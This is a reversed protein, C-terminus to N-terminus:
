QPARGPRVVIAQNNAQLTIDLRGEREVWQANHDSGSSVTWDTMGQLSRVQFTTREKRAAANLGQVRLHLQTGDWHAESMAFRPFDVGEVTPESFKELNPTNFISSWDGQNCVWGAMMRANYQGRPHVENLGLGLTFEGNDWTPELHQEAATWIRSKTEPDAFEGALQLLMTARGVDQFGTIEAGSTVGNVAAAINWGAQAVGRKQPAFYWAPAVVGLPGHGVHADAVPDFYLDLGVAQDADWTM